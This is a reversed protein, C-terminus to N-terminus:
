CLAIKKAGAARKEGGPHNFKRRLGSFIPKKFPTKSLFVRNKRAQPASRVGGQIILNAGCVGRNQAGLTVDLSTMSNGEVCFPTM